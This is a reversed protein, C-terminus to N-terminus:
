HKFGEGATGIGATKGKDYFCRVAATGAAGAPKRKKTM